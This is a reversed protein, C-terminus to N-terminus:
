IWSLAAVSVLVAIIPIVVTVVFVDKYAQKHTLGMVMLMAIIAGCHPLSDLGGAAINALRHLIEPEVGRELYVPAFTQMFIQLGGSSSGVIGSVVSVSVVVSLLPPLDLGLIWTSFQSFGATQIVVGGFGIVAATSLLPMISDDAGQGIISVFKRRLIPFLLISIVTGVVLAFSPWIIPQQLSYGVIKGLVGDDVGVGMMMFLRPMLIMGFVALIPICAVRFSPVNTLNDAIKEMSLDQANAEFGEGKLKALTWERQLYAMGLVVMIVSALIGIWAGAFLDTGLATSAIVNHISPSGPLATMTFTGAGLAVASGFLRKPLNAERMLTVGLPYMTFIVVFTVVGGYTLLACVIMTIWIVRQSGLRQTIVQAISNAAMSVGMVKGFIAGCLFLLFFKGAFTFAGLPGFPFYELLTKSVVLDNSFAIILSCFLAAVVVNFGRMAMWILVAIAVFLGINGIM